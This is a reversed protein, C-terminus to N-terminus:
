TPAAQLEPWKLALLVYQYVFHAASTAVNFWLLTPLDGAGFAWLFLGQLLIVLLVNYGQRDTHGRVALTMFALGAGNMLIASVFVMWVFPTTEAYKQGLLLMWHQPFLVATALVCLMVGLYAAHVRAILLGLRPGAAARAIAPFLLVNAVRDVITLVLALRGFAGIEALTKSSGFLSALFIVVAGQVQFFISSPILPVVIRRIQRDIHQEDGPGPRTEAIGGARFARRYLWLALVESAVTAALLFAISYPTMPTLLVAGVLLLRSVAVLFTIRSVTAVQGLIVLVTNAFSGRLSALVSAVVFLSALAHAPTLWGHQVFTYATYPVVVAFSLALLLTRRRFVQGCVAAVWPAEGSRQGVIPMACKSLGLDSIGMILQLCTILFTYAAYQDKPLVNVILLGTLGAVAVSFTEVGGVMVVQRLRSLLNM